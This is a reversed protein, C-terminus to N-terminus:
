YRRGWKFLAVGKSVNTEENTEASTEFSWNESLRKRIGVSQNVGGLDSGVSLSLGQALKVRARFVGTYPNYGVSDIPTSALYYMSLLGLAGDVMAARTEEVSRQSETDLADADGGYMLMSLLESPSRPPDSELYYFPRDVTGKLILDIRFDTEKFVFLGDLEPSEQSPDLKVIVREVLAKHKLFDVTYNKVEVTGALLARDTTVRLDVDIPVPEGQLVHTELLASKATKITIDLELPLPDAEVKAEPKAILTDQLRADPTFQPIPDEIRLKPLEFAVDKFLVDLKLKPKRDAWTQIAGNVDMALAQVSSSLATTCQLPIDTQEGLNV